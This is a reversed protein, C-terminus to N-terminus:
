RDRVRVKSRFRRSAACILACWNGITMFQRTCRPASPVSGTQSLDGSWPALHARGRRPRRPGAAATGDRPSNAATPSRLPLAATKLSQTCAAFPRLMSTRWSQQGRLACMRVRATKPYVHARSSRQSCYRQGDANKQGAGQTGTSRLGGRAGDLGFEAALTRHPQRLTVRDGRVARDAPRCTVALAVAEAGLLGPLLKELVRLAVDLTCELEARRARHLRGACAHVGVLGLVDLGKDRAVDGRRHRVVAADEGEDIRHIACRELQDIFFDVEGARQVAIAKKGVHDEVRLVVRLLAVQDVEPDLRARVLELDDVGADAFRGLALARGPRQLGPLRDRPPPNRCRLVGTLGLLRASPFHHRGHLLTDDLPAVRLLPGHLDLVGHSALREFEVEHTGVLGHAAQLLVTAEERARIEALGAGGVLEVIEVEPHVLVTALQRHVLDTHVLHRHLLLVAGPHLLRTVVEVIELEVDHGLLLIDRRRRPELWACPTSAASSATRVAQALAGCAGGGSGDRVAAANAARRRSASGASPAGAPAARPRWSHNSAASLSLGCSASPRAWTSATAAASRVAASCGLGVMSRNASYTSVAARLAAHSYPTDSSKRSRRGPSRVRARSWAATCVASASDSRASAIQCTRADSRRASRSTAEARSSAASSSVRTPSRCASSALARACASAPSSAGVSVSALSSSSARASCRSSWARARRSSASARRAAATPNGTDASSPSATRQSRHASMAASTGAAARSQRPSASMPRGSITRAPRSYSRASM